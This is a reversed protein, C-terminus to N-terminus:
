RTLRNYNARRLELKKTLEEVDLAPHKRRIESVCDGFDFDSNERWWLPIIEALLTIVVWLITLLVNDGISEKVMIYDNELESYMLAQLYSDSALEDETLNNKTETKKLIPEGLVEELSGINNENILKMITEETIDEISYLKIDRSYFGDTSSMWKSYYSITGKLEKYDEYQQEYRINGLNDFEKMMNLNQKQKNRYFPTGGFISFIGFTIGVTVVFPAILQGARLSIKLTKLTNIKVNTIRSHKIQMELEKIEKEMQLLLKKKELRQKEALRNQKNKNNRKNSM